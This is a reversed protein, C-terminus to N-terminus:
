KMQRQWSKAVKLIGLTCLNNNNLHEAETEKFTSVKQLLYSSLHSINQLHMLYIDHAMNVIIVSYHLTPKVTTWKKGFNRRIPLIGIGLSNNETNRCAKILIKIELNFNGSGLGQWQERQPWLVHNLHQFPLKYM